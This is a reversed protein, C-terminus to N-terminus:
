ILKGGNMLPRTNNYDIKERVVADIDIGLHSMLDLTRIIIDALETPVGEPKNYIGSYVINHLGLGDRYAELAESAESCILMLMEGFNFERDYFGQDIAWENIEKGLENLTM